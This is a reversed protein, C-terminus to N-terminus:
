ETQDTQNIEIIPEDIEVPRYGILKEIEDQIKSADSAHSEKYGIAKAKYEIEQYDWSVNVNNAAQRLIDSDLGDTKQFWIM